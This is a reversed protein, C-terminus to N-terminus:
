KGSVCYLATNSRILLQDNDPTITARFIEADSASLTNRAVIDLAKGPRIVVTEGSSPIAENRASPASSPCNGHPRM